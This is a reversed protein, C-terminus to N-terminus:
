LEIIFLFLKVNELALKLNPLYKVLYPGTSENPVLHIVEIMMLQLSCDDPILQSLKSWNVFDLVMPNINHQSLATNSHPTSLQSRCTPSGQQGQGGGDDGGDDGDGDGDGGDGGGDDDDDSVVMMVLAMAMM